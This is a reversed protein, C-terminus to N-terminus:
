LNPPTFSKRINFMDGKEHKKQYLFYPLWRRKGDEGRVVIYRITYTAITNDQCNYYTYSTGDVNGEVNFPNGEKDILLYPSYKGTFKKENSSLICDMFYDTGGRKAAPLEASCIYNPLIKKHLITESVSALTSDWNVRSKSQRPIYWTQILTQIPKYQNQEPSQTYQNFIYGEIDSCKERAFSPSACCIFAFVVFQKIRDM